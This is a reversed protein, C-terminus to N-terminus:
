ITTWDSSAPAYFQEGDSTRYSLADPPADAFPTLKAHKTTLVHRPFRQQAAKASPSGAQEEQSGLNGGQATGTGALNSGSEVM